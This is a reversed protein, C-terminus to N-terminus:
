VVYTTRIDFSSPHSPNPVTIKLITPTPTNPTKTTHPGRQGESMEGKSKTRIPRPFGQGMAAGIVRVGRILDPAPELGRGDLSLTHGARGGRAYGQTRKAGRGREIRSLPRPIPPNPTLTPLKPLLLRNKRSNKTIHSTPQLRPMPINLQPNDEHPRRLCRRRIPQRRRQPPHLHIRHRTRPRHHHQLSSRHLRQTCQNPQLTSSSLHPHSAPSRRRIHQRGRRHNVPRPPDTQHTITQRPPTRLSNQQHCIDWPDPALRRPFAMSPDAVAWMRAWRRSDNLEIRRNDDLFITARRYRVTDENPNRIHLSGTMGMHLVLHSTADLDDSLTAILYKGRRSLATIRKHSVRNAFTEIDSAPAAISDPWGVEVREICRGSLDNSVLYRRISEVEPLEPM